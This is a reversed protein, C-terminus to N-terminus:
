KVFRIRRENSILFHVGSSLNQMPLRLTGNASAQGQLLLRGSASVVRVMENAQLGAVSLHGQEVVSQFGTHQSLQSVLVPTETHFITDIPFLGTSDYVLTVNFITDIETTGGPNTSSAVRRLDADLIMGKENWSKATLTDSSRSNTVTSSYSRNHRIRKVREQEDFEMDYYQKGGPGPHGYAKHIMRGLSDYYEQNVGKNWNSKISDVVPIYIDGAKYLFEAQFGGERIVFSDIAILGMNDYAILLDFESYTTMGGKNSTFSSRNVHGKTIMGWHNWKEGTLTDTHSAAGGGSSSYKHYYQTAIKGQENFALRSSNGWRTNSKASSGSYSYVVKRGLSDSLSYSKAGSWPAGGSSKWIDNVVPLTLAGATYFTDPIYSRLAKQYSVKQPTIGTSDYTISVTDVARFTKSGHEESNLTKARHRIGKTIMGMNNWEEGILTDIGNSNFGNSILSLKTEVTTITDGSNLAALVQKNFLVSDELGFLKQDWKVLRGLSDNYLTDWVVNTDPFTSTDVKVTQSVPIDKVGVTITTDGQFGFDTTAFLTSAALLSLPLFRKAM